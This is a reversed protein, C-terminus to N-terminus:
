SVLIGRRGGKNHGPVNGRTVRALVKPKWQTYGGATEVWERVTTVSLHQYFDYNSRQLEKIIATYHWGVKLQAATIASWSFPTLWNIYKGPRDAKKKPRGQPKRADAKIKKKIERAPRSGKAVTGRLATERYKLVVDVQSQYVICNIDFYDESVKAHKKARPNEAEAKARSRRKRKNQGDKRQKEKAAAQLRAQKELFERQSRVDEPDRKFRERKEETLVKPKGWLRFLGPKKFPSGNKFLDLAQRTASVVKEKIRKKV